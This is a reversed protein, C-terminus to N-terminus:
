QNPRSELETIYAKVKQNVDEAVREDVAIYLATLAAMCENRRRWLLPTSSVPAAGDTKSQDQNMDNM